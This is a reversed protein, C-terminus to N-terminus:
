GHLSQDLFDVGHIIVADFFNKIYKISNQLGNEDFSSLVKVM